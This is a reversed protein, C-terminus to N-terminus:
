KWQYLYKALYILIKKKKDDKIKKAYKTFYYILLRKVHQQRSKPYKLVFPKIKKEFIRKAIKEEVSMQLSHYKTNEKNSFIQSNDTKKNVLIVDYNLNNFDIVYQKNSKTIYLKYKKLNSVYEQKTKGWVCINFMKCVTNSIYNVNDYKSLLLKVFDVVKKDNMLVNSLIKPCEYILRSEYRKIYNRRDLSNNFLIWGSTYHDLNLCIKSKGFYVLSDDTKSITDDFTPDYYRNGLKVWSHLITYVQLNKSDIPQVRWVIREPKYGFYNLMFMFTKVYWDCVM